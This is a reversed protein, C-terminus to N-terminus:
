WAVTWGLTQLLSRAQADTFEAATGTWGAAYLCGGTPSLATVGGIWLGGGSTLNYVGTIIEADTYLKLNLGTLDYVLLMPRVGAGYNVTGAVAVAASDTVQYKQGTTAQVDSVTANGVGCVNRNAAPTNSTFVYMLLAISNANLNPIDAFNAFQANTGDAWTVAKRTWGAVAAQYGPANAATLTAIGISDALNGAAEQARWLYSPDHGSAMGATRMTTQAQALTNPVYKLSTADKSVGAMADTVDGIGIKPGIRPGIRQGIRM